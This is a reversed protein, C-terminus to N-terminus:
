PGPAGSPTTSDSSSLRAGHQAREVLRPCCGRGGVDRRRRRSDVLNPRATGEGDSRLTVGSEHERARGAFGHVRVPLHSGPANKCRRRMATPWRPPRPAARLCSLLVGGWRSARRRRRPGRPEAAPGAIVALGARNDYELSRVPESGDLVAPAEGLIRSDRLGRQPAPARPRPNTHERASTRSSM